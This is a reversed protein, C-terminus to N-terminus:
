ICSSMEEGSDSGSRATSLEMSSMGVKTSSCIEFGFASPIEVLSSTETGSVVFRGACFTRGGGVADLGVTLPREFEVGRM